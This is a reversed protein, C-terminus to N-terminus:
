PISVNKFLTKLDTESGHQVVESLTKAVIDDKRFEASLGNAVRIEDKSHLILVTVQEEANQFIIPKNQSLLGLLIHDFM